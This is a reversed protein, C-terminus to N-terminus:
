SLRLKTLKVRLDDASSASAQRASEIETISEEKAIKYKDKHQIRLTNKESLMGRM